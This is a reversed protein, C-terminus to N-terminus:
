IKFLKKISKNYDTLYIEDINAYQYIPDKNFEKQDFYTNVNLVNILIKTM